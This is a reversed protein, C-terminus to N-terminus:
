DDVGRGDEEVTDGERRVAHGTRLMRRVLRGHIPHITGLLAELRGAGGGDGSGQSIGQRCLAQFLGPLYTAFIPDAAQMALRRRQDATLQEEGENSDNRHKVYDAQLRVFPNFSVVRPGVAHQMGKGMTM